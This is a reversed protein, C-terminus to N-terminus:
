GVRWSVAAVGDCVLVPERNLPERRHGLQDVALPPPEDGDLPGTVETWRDVVVLGGADASGLARPIWGIAGVLLAIRAGDVLRRGRILDHVADLRAPDLPVLVENLRDKTPDAALRVERWEEGTWEVRDSPMRSLWGIAVVLAPGPIVPLEGLSTVIPGVGSAALASEDPDDPVQPGSPFLFAPDEVALSSGHNRLRIPPDDDDVAIYRLATLCEPGIRLVDRARSGNGAGLEVVTFPDPRGERDWWRDICCVLWDAGPDPLARRIGSLSSYPLPGLRRARELVLTSSTAREVGDV